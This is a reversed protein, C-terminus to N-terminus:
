YYLYRKDDVNADDMLDDLVSQFTVGPRMRSKEVYLNDFNNVETFGRVQFVYVGNDGPLPDSLTNTALGFVAAAVKADNGSGEISVNSYSFNPDTKVEMGLASALQQIDSAGAAKIRDALVAAKKEEIVAEQVQFRVDELPSVGAERVGSILAVLYRDGVDFYNISGVKETFAWKIMERADEIGMVSVQNKTVNVTQIQYEQEAAKFKEPTNFETRFTNAERFLDRETDKSYNLRRSVFAVKAAPTVPRAKDIRVLHIGFRTDVQFIDGEEHHYFVADNFPEVMMGPGFYGLDGGNMANSQDQSHVAALQAFDARGSELLRQLSDALARVSDVQSFSRPVFLIHSASVSDPILKRDVLKAFKHAGNDFYPDYYTGPEDAFFADANPDGALDSALFYRGTYPIDSYRKVFLSDNPSEKFDNFLDAIQAFAEATDAASPVLDITYYKIERGEETEFRDKHAKIYAELDKDTYSIENDSVRTYPMYIYAADATRMSNVRADRAMFDPTYIGKNFLAAYKTKIRDEEILSELHRVQMRINEDEDAAIVYQRAFNRDYQGTQPNILVNQAFYHPRVGWMLSGLEDATVSLGMRDMHEGLLADSAFSYWVEERFQARNAANVEVNPFLANVREEYDGLAKQYAQIDVKRGNIKGANQGSAGGMLTNSSLADMLLFLLLAVAIFGILLGTRKRIAGIVAM